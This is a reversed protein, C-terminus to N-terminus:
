EQGMVKSTFLQYTEVLPWLIITLALAPKSLDNGKSDEILHPYTNGALNCGLLYFMISVLAGWTM